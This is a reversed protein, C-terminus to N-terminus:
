AAERVPTPKRCQMVTVLQKAIAMPTRPLAQAHLSGPANPWINTLSEIIKINTSIGAFSIFLINIHMRKQLPPAFTSEEACWHEDSLLM